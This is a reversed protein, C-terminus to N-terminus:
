GEGEGGRRNGNGRGLGHGTGRCQGVRRAGWGLGALGTWAREEVQGQRACTKVGFHGACQGAM